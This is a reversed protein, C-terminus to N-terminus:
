CASAGTVRGVNGTVPIAFLPEGMMKPNPAPDTAPRSREGLSEGLM